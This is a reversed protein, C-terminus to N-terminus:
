RWSPPLRCIPMWRSVSLLLDAAAPLFRSVDSTRTAETRCMRTGSFITSYRM